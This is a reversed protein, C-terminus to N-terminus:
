VQMRMVERYAEVMKNRIEMLLQFSTQAEEVAIVVQHIDEIEGTLMKDTTAEAKKHLADVDSVLGKMVEGFSPASGQSERRPTAGPQVPRLGDPLGSSINKIEDAM